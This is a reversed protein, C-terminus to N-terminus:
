DKQIAALYSQALEFLEQVLGSLGTLDAREEEALIIYRGNVAYEELSDLIEFKSDLKYGTEELSDRLHPLSHGKRFNFEGSNAHIIAKLAKEAAQQLHLGCNQHQDDDGLLQIALQLDKQALTLATKALQIEEDKNM